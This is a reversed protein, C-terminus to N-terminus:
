LKIFDSCDPSNSIYINKFDNFPELYRIVRDIDIPYQDYCTFVINKTVGKSYEFDCMLSYKLLEIDLAGIRFDKQYENYKNTETNAKNLSIGYEKFPGSGHRTHYTRSVYWIEDITNNTLEMYNKCTTNSRTVNPFFGHHQDLLIGQGSEFIQNHYRQLIEDYSKLGLCFEAMLMDYCIDYFENIHNDINTIITSPLIFNSNYYNIISRYKTKFVNQFAIDRAYLHYHKENREITKGFGMGTTGNNLDNQDVRNCEVDAPTTIMTLPDIWLKPNFQKIVDYENFLSVPYLTCYKSIYTPIDYVTGSGFQSFIFQNGGFGVTHGCQQGGNGKIVIARWPKTCKKALFSTTIGKGSDGFGLDLVLQKM